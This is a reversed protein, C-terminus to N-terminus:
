TLKQLESYMCTRVHLIFRLNPKNLNSLVFKCFAPFYWYYCADCRHFVDHILFLNISSNKCFLFFNIIWRSSRFKKDCFYMNFIISFMYLFYEFPIRQMYNCLSLLWFSHHNIICDHNPLVSFGRTKRYLVFIIGFIGGGSQCGSHCDSCVNIGFTLSIYFMKKKGNCCTVWQVLKM